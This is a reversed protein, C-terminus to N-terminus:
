SRVQCRGGIDDGDGDRVSGPDVAAGRGGAAQFIILATPV